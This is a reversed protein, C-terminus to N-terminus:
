ADGEIVVKSLDGVLMFQAVIANLFGLRNRRLAADDSMVLVEDFYQDIPERLKILHELLGDFDNQALRKELQSEAKLLARWLDREAQDCFAKPDYSQPVEDAQKILINRARSFALVLSRFGENTRLKELSRAKKLANVFHGTGTAVVADSLDYTVKYDYRLVQHLRESFFAFLESLPERKPIFEYLSLEDKVLEFLDFDLERQLAMRVIANAARRLGFPDRSGTPKQDILFSGIVTDLKDALSLLLGADSEPLPAGPGQPRYHQAIAQVVEPDEGDLEAYVAGLKGQLEPFEGVMLTVLDAKSLFTARDLAELTDDSFSLRQGLGHALARMREVKDWISGLKEQYIVSKLGGVYTELPRKRDQTFFFESDVLRAGLVREYGRRVAEGQGTQGDRIGVFHPLIEQTERDYCPVFRQHYIMTTALVCAPLDLFRPDFDGPVASPYEASHVLQHMFGPDPQCVANWAQAVRLLEAEIHAQREQPQVIVGHKRLQSFYDAPDKASFATGAFFRHGTTADAACLGAWEFPVVTSGVLALLSRVPRPFRVDSGPWRMAEPPSFQDLVRPLLTQLVQPTPQGPRTVTVFLYHGGGVEKVYAEDVEVGKGKCFGIAARTPQGEADFAVKQAPGKAEFTREPQLADLEQVWAVLRRPASYVNLARFGLTSDDLGQRLHAKLQDCLADVVHPPLDEVGIELVFDQPAGNFAGSM